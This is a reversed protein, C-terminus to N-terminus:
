VQRYNPFFDSSKDMKCGLACMEVLKNYKEEDFVKRGISFYTNSKKNFAIKFKYLKDEKSGLGGGLHFTKLGNEFGWCAAKYLLLNSPGFQRYEVDSAALHYHMQNNSFLIISMAIIKGKYLGYFMLANRKLDKLVSSYFEDGFYYYDSTKNKDMTKEYLSKFENLLHNNWGWYIEVGSKEAKRIVNRNKSTLEDWIQEQSHLVMTVTRGLRSTDYLTSVKEINNLVPHFRVFESVIGSNKCYTSYKFDLSQLNNITTEGEILFGGYGYSTSIDFWENEPLKGEFQDSLAIDRKMVVNIARISNNKYYFLVPEGDGHAQFAKVYESFYYIDNKCFSKVINDWRKYENIHIVTLKNM